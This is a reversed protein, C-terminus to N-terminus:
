NLGWQARRKKYLATQRPLKAADEPNELLKEIIWELYQSGKFLVTEKGTLNHELYKLAADPKRFT